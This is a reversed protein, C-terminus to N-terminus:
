YFNVKILGNKDLHHVCLRAHSKIIINHHKLGYEISEPKVKHLSTKRKCIFCRGHHSGAINILVM